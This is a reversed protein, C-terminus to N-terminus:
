PQYSVVARDFAPRSMAREGWAEFGPWRSLDVQAQALRNANVVWSIDALGNASGSLWPASALAEELRDLTAALARQAREVRAAWPAGAEAYDRLFHALEVDAHHEEFLRVEEAGVKRFPRFLLEHSLTKITPQFAGAEAIRAHMARREADDTPQLAPKPFHEDLYLIIDNSEIVVQGDHVLTPVVGRPNIRQYDATCHENGPLNMHHSTWALGKEELAIRVRQSCNSMVFHFLHLGKMGPVDPHDSDYLGM